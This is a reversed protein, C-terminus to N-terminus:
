AGPKRKKDGAKLFRSVHKYLLLVILTNLVAKIANFPVTAFLVLTKMDAIGGNVKAAAGLVNGMGGFAAAYAPILVFYNMLASVVLMSVVGLLSGILATKRTRNRRYLIAGPLIFSCGMVFNSLEGIGATVTGDIAFNLLVKVAEIVVGAVPGLAYAGVLVIADSVEIKYFSPFIPLPIKLAMVLTALAALVAITVLMRVTLFKSTKNEM